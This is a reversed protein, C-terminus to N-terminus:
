EQGSGFGGPKCTTEPTKRFRDKARCNKCEVRLPTLPFPCGSGPEGAVLYFCDIPFGGRLIDDFGPIGSSLLVNEQRVDNSSM